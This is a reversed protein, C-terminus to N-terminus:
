SIKFKWLERHGKLAEPLFSNQTPNEVRTMWALKIQDRQEFSENVGEMWLPIVM